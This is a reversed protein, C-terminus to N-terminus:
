VVMFVDTDINYLKMILIIKRYNLTFIAIRFSQLDNIKSTYHRTTRKTSVRVKVGCDIM